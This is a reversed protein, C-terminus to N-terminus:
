HVGEAAADMQEEITTRMYEVVGDLDMESNVTNHNTQNVTIEATTFRNIYDTEALDRIYKLDEATISLSDAAKKTNKATDGTNGAINELPTEPLEPLKPDNPLKGDDGNKKWPLFNKVIDTVKDGFEAGEKYAKDAWGDQWTDFTNMGKSFAAGVSEYDKKNGAAEQAKLAYQEAQGVVGSYDFEIFPLKNLQECIKSIVTLVTALLTYWFTQISTISNHFAAQMNNCLAFIAGWVGLSFNAVTLGLNKIFQNAVNVAGCIAGFATKATHGAGSFKNALIIVAGILIGLVVIIWTLPCALLAANFGIQAGTATTTAAVVSFTAGAHFLARAAAIAHLTNSIGQIINYALLVGNYALYAAAVTGIVPAITGWHETIFNAADGVTSGINVAMDVVWGMSNGVNNLVNEVTQGFMSVMEMTTPLGRSSLENDLNTIVNTWGRTIAAGVNAFTTAWTSGADKAAGASVGADMARSVTDIFKASSIVGESLDDKVKAVNEGTAKAYIEAAGIGADFLRDLQDAEVKGKSYMKGIADVVSELQENTGEGYFSVADAWIRVQETAAGLGMGRTLFGQTAKSAVDLGYATGVTTDKLKALAANAMNSDGTMISVTKQFRNMTDIRGFAGSLDTVGVRGLTNKVLGVANNAVIIAKEWGKFGTEVQRVPSRCREVEQNFEGQETINDRIYREASGITQSLRMYSANIASADMDKMARSLNEQEAVASGLQSRLRELGSNARDADIGVPNNEIKQIALAIGHIRDRIGTIDQAANAPLIDLGSATIDIKAQQDNLRELMEDTQRIEQQFREIGTGTFVPMNDSRWQVQQQVPEPQRAAPAAMNELEQNFATAAAAAQNLYDRAGQISSTDFDASVAQSMDEMACVALNVSSILNLMPATFRDQLQVGTMIGGM